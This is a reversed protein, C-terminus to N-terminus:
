SVDGRQHINALSNRFARRISLQCGSLQGCLSSRLSFLPSFQSHSYCCPLATVARTVTGARTHGRVPPDFSSRKATQPIAHPHDIM